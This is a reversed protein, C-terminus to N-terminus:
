WDLMFVSFDNRPRGSALRGIAASLGLFSAMRSRKEAVGVVLGYHVGDM